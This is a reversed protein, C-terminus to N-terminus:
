LHKPWRSVRWRKILMQVHVGGALRRARVRHLIARHIRINRQSIAIIRGTRQIELYAEVARLAIANATDEVRYRASHVRSINRKVSFTTGFGDFVLQRLDVGAEYRNMQDWGSKGSPRTARYRTDISNLWQHGISARADISPLYQGRTARLEKSIARRNARLAGVEPHTDVAKQVVERLTASAAPTVSASYALVVTLVFPL